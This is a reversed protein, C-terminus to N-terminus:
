VYILVDNLCSQQAYNLIDTENGKAFGWGSNFQIM